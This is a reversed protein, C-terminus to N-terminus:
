LRTAPCSLLPVLDTLCSILADPQAQDVPVGHNYGYSVLVVPCGAARASQADNVSDGVMLTHAPLTGLAECAKLLPMPHPKKEPFSDGGFVHSFFGDLQTAQLLAVAFETPKNTVCALPLGCSRLQQLGELAGPYVTAHQGNIARYHRQYHQWGLQNLAVLDIATQATNAHALAVKLVSDILHASGKGVAHEVVQHSVPPLQLDALMANIAVTFDGLTDVLTGDLDILAARVSAIKSEPRPQTMLDDLGVPWTM